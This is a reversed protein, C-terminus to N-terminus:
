VTAFYFSCIYMCVDHIISVMCVVNNSTIFHFPNFLYKELNQSRLESFQGFKPTGMQYNALHPCKGGSVM